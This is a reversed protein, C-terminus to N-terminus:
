SICLLHSITCWSLATMTLPLSTSGISPPFFNIKIEKCFTTALTLRGLICQLYMQGQKPLAILAPWCSKTCIIPTIGPYVPLQFVVGMVIMYELISMVSKLHSHGNNSPTLIACASFDKPLIELQQNSNSFHIDAPFHTLFNNNGHDYVPQLAQVMDTIYALPLDSSQIMSLQYLRSYTKWNNHM